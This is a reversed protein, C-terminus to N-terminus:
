RLFGDIFNIFRNINNKILYKRKVKAVITKYYERREKLEDVDITDLTLPICVGDKVFEECQYSMRTSILPLGVSLYEFFTNSMNYKFAAETYYVGEPQTGVKSLPYRPVSPDDYLYFAYDYDKLRDMLIDHPVGSYYNFRSYKKKYEDMRNRETENILWIYIDIIVDNRRVFKELIRGLSTHGDTGDLLMTAHSFVCVFRIKGDDCLRYEGYDDCYDPFYLSKGFYSINFTKSIFDKSYYRWIIGDANELAYRESEYIYCPMGVYTGLCIDYATFLIKGFSSKYKCMIAPIISNGNPADVYFLSTETKNAEILVGESSNIKVLDIGLKEVEKDGAYEGIWLQIIKIKKSLSLEKIIRVTRASMNGVIFVLDYQTNHDNRQNSIHDSSKFKVNLEQEKEDILAEFAICSIREIDEKGNLFHETILWNSLYYFLKEEGSKFLRDWVSEDEEVIYESIYCANNIDLMSLVSNIEKNHQRSVAVIMLANDNKFSISYVSKIPIDFLFGHANINTTIFSQINQELKLVHLLKYIYKGVTGAGYVYLKNYKNVTPYFDTILKDWLLYM